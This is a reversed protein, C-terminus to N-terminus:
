SFKNLKLLQTKINEVTFEFVNIKKTQNPKGWNYYTTVKLITPKYQKNGLYTFNVFWDGETQKEIFVEKSTYGKKKQDLILRNSSEISNEAQYTQLYPNVFELIFEAESTNWEFVLRVDAESIKDANNIKIRPYHLNSKKGKTYNSIIESAMIEGIDNDEIKFGKKLYNAYIYWFNKYNKLDTFCNALDRYSQAYNPRLNAVKRYIALAKKDENLEQYKYAIGKLDEPNNAAFKEYDSLVELLIDKNKYTKQFYNIVNFHYNDSDKYKSYQKKYTNLVENSNSTDSFDNLYEPEYKKQNEYLIADYNYYDEESFYYNDFNIDKIKDYNITTEVKIICGNLKTCSIYIFKIEDIFIPFPMDFGFGDIQWLVPGKLEQRKLYILNEGFKNQKTFFSPVKELIAETITAANKNLTKADITVLEFGSTLSGISSGGLKLDKNLQLKPTKNETKLEINLTQTVEEILIAKQKLGLFDFTLIEGTKAEITYFGKFNTKASENRNKVLIKAGSLAENKYTVFGSITKFSTNKQTQSSLIYPFFLFLLLFKTYM